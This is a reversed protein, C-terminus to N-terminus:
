RWILPACDAATCATGWVVTDGEDTGWVVTDGGDTTGWVVTDGDDTTGWVVTDGDSTGTVTNLTWTMDCNAGGCINGWVVNRLKTNSWTWRGSTSDCATNACGVGWEVPAGASTKRAGWVVAPSWANADATLRGSGVAYNGWILTRSWGLTSPYATAEPAAFFKALAVAGRANLFGAGQTLPDYSVNVEATYQLIAKVANPTLAPNAQLMLAVTGSVVPAAMSTGTLSLYPVFGTALTGGLLFQSWKSYFTSGPAALSEIGVSPAAIDPKAGFDVAGPGRSSSSAITDDSRVTTGMHSSGAVTLVWPANGPATVGRYRTQGEPSIGHNGAAAVVVIGAQVARLTALTLPDVMYSDYVGAAVSLNIVRINLADREAVARELAAIVDSIKGRGQSDLVKLVMLSAGPAIGSRAGNSDAGNGAVIGAVHTGHGYDDYPAPAGNVFDVFRDVRQAGAGNSLDDHWTTVGSDIIAVGIKSGDYGLERRVAAAGVTEGTREMAGVVTRDLSISLIGPHAALIALVRNPIVAVQGAISPLERQLTGGTSAVLSRLGALAQFDNARIIVQSRGGSMRARQQLLSDLKETSVSARLHVTAPSVLALLLVVAFLRVFRVADFSAVLPM